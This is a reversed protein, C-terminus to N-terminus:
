RPGYDYPDPEPEPPRHSVVKREWDALEREPEQSQLADNWDKSEGPPLVREISSREPAIEKIKQALKDGAMDKDTAVKISQNREVARQLALEVVAWQESSPQGGISFYATEKGTRQMQAHSLADIASECIVVTEANKINSSIWVAKKGGESFGTFDKNKLEYGTLGQSDYHPFVANGRQDRRVVASFRDDSLTKETIGRSELYDHKGNVPEALAFKALVKAQNREVPEPKKQRQSEPVQVSRGGIWPRLEKRVEGLNFGERKQLFDIISGNDADDRVSFYIGHGDNATAIVIKDDDKRMVHCNKTSANRDISYGRSAAFETFNINYKFAEIEDSRNEKMVSCARNITRETVEIGRSIESQRETAKDVSQELRKSTVDVAEFERRKGGVFESFRKAYQEYTRRTAEALEAFKRVVADRVRDYGNEVVKAIENCVRRVKSSLDGPRFQFDPLERERQESIESRQTASQAVVSERKDRKDTNSDYRYVIADSGLERRLDDFLNPVDRASDSIANESKAQDSESFEGFGESNVELSQTNERIYALSAEDVEREPEKTAEGASRRESNSENELGVTSQRPENKYRKSNFASRSDIARQLKEDAQRARVEDISRRNGSRAPNEAAIAQCLGSNFQRDYLKGKLRLAKDFGEPKVSIYDKGERTIEGLESLCAVIGARDNITGQSQEIRAMIWKNIAEKAIKRNELNPLGHSPEDKTLRARAPDDPDAWGHSHNWKDRLSDFAATTAKGPPRINLANGTSLELRPTVFHLEVNGEHEHRVWLIDYQDKNLGAFALREFEEICERQEELTPADGREFSIVGSTYKWKNNSSDILQRTLDPNGALVVPAPERRFQLGEKLVVEDLLYNVPGSGSGKKSQAGGSFFSIVAM